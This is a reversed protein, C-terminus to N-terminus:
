LELFYKFVFSRASKRAVNIKLFAHLSKGSHFFASCCNFFVLSLFLFLLLM